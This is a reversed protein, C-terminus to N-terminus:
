ERGAARRLGPDRRRGHSAALHSPSRRTAARLLQEASRGHARQDSGGELEHRREPQGRQDRHDHQVVDRASAPTEAARSRAEDRAAALRRHVEDRLPPHDLRDARRVNREVHHDLRLQRALLTVQERGVQVGKCCFTSSRRAPAPAPLSQQAAAPVAALLAALLATCHFRMSVPYCCRIRPAAIPRPAPRDTRMESPEQQGARIAPGVELPEEGVVDLRQRGAGAAVRRQQGGLPPHDGVHADELQAIGDQDIHRGTEGLATRACRSPEDEAFVHLDPRSRPARRFRCRRDPRPPSPQRPTSCDLFRGRPRKWQEAADAEPIRVAVHDDDAAVLRSDVAVVDHEVGGIAADSSPRAAPPRHSQRRAGFRGLDDPDLRAPRPEADVHVRLRNREFGADLIARDRPRFPTVHALLDDDADQIAPLAAHGTVEDPETTRGVNRAAACDDRSFAVDAPDRAHHM